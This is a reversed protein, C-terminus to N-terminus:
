TRRSDSASKDARNACNSCQSNSCGICAGNKKKKRMVYLVAILWFLVIGLLVIDRIRM